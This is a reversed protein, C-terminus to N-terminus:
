QRVGFVSYSGREYLSTYKEPANKLWSFSDAYLYYDRREERHTAIYRLKHKHVYESLAHPSALSRPRVVETQRRSGFFPYVRMELVCLREEKWIANGQPVKSFLSVNFLRDYRPGFGIHWRNSLFGIGCALLVCSTAVAISRAKKSCGKLLLALVTTVMLVTLAVLM